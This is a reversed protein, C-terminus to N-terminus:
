EKPREPVTRIGRKRGPTNDFEEVIYFLLLPYLRPFEGHMYSHALNVFELLKKEHPLANKDDPHVIRAITRLELSPIDLFVLTAIPNEMINLFTHTEFEPTAYLELSTQKRWDFFDPDDYFSKLVDMKEGMSNEYTDRLRKMATDINEDKPALGIGKIANNLTFESDLRGLGYTAVAGSHPGGFGPMKGTKIQELFEIRKTANWEVFDKSAPRINFDKWENDIRARIMGDEYGKMDVSPQTFGGNQWFNKKGRELKGAWLFGPIKGLFVAVPALFGLTKLFGRRDM